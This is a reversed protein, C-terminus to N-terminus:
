LSTSKKWSLLAAQMWDVDAVVIWWLRPQESINSVVTRRKSKNSWLICDKKSESHRCASCVSASANLNFCLLDNGAILLFSRTARISGYSHLKPSKSHLSIGIIGGTRLSATSWLATFMAATGAKCASCLRDDFNTKFISVVMDSSIGNQLSSTSAVDFYRCERKLARFALILDMVDICSTFGKRHGNWGKKNQQWFYLLSRECDFHDLVFGPRRVDSATRVSSVHSTFLKAAGQSDKDRVESDFCIQYIM